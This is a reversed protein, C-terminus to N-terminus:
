YRSMPLFILTKIADKESIIFFRLSLM